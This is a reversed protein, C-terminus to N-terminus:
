QGRQTNETSQYGERGKGNSRRLHIASPKPLPPPRNTPSARCVSRHRICLVACTPWSRTCYTSAPIILLINKSCATLSSSVQRNERRTLEYGAAMRLALRTSIKVETALLKTGDWYHAAERKVKQWLTLKIGDKKKDAEKGMLASKAELASSQEASLENLAKADEGATKPLATPKNNSVESPLTSKNLRAAADAIPDGKSESAKAEDIAQQEKAPLPKKAQEANYGPPPVNGPTNSSSTTDTHQTRRPVLIAIAPVRRSLPGSPSRLQRAAVARMFAPTIVTAGRPASM